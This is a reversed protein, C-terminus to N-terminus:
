KVRTLFAKKLEALSDYETGNEEDFIKVGKGLEVTGGIALRGEANVKGGFIRTTGGGIGAAIGVGTANVTGGHIYITGVKQFAGGIGPADYGGTANVTGGYIYIMGGNDEGGASIGAAVGGGTANVTGGYIYTTGGKKAWKGSGIGSAYNLTGTASVTGGYIYVTGGDGADGGGIGAGSSKGNANVTGGYIYVTGGDDGNGGGIAAANHGSTASIKGGHLSITGTGTGCGGIGAAYDIGTAVIAGTKNEKNSQVYVSFSVGQAVDIGKNATLTAGNALILHVDGTLMIREEFTTSATLINWGSVFSDTSEDIVNVDKKPIKETKYAKREVNYSLYSYVAQKSRGCGVGGFAFGITAVAGLAVNWFRKISKGM